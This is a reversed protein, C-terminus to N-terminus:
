SVEPNNKPIIWYGGVNDPLVLDGRLRAENAKKEMDLWRKHQDLQREGEAVAEKYAAYYMAGVLVACGAYITGAFIEVDNRRVWRKVKTWRTEQTEEM